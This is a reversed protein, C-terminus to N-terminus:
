ILFTANTVYLPVQLRRLGARETAAILVSLRNAVLPEAAVPAAVVGQTTGICKSADSSSPVPPADQEAKGCRIRCCLRAIVAGPAEALECCCCTSSRSERSGSAVAAQADAAAVLGFSALLVIALVRRLM